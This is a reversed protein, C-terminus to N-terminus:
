APVVHGKTDPGKRAAHVRPRRTTAPTLVGSRSIGAPDAGNQRKARPRTSPHNAGKPLQSDEPRRTKQTARGRWHRWTVPGTRVTKRPRDKRSVWVNLEMLIALNESDGAAVQPILPPVLAHGEAWGALLRLVKLEPDMTLM